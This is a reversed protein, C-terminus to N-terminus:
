KKGLMRKATAICDVLPRVMVRQTTDTQLPVVVEERLVLLDDLDAANIYQSRYTKFDETDVLLSLGQVYGLLSSQPVSTYIRRITRAALMFVGRSRVMPMVREETLHDIQRAIACLYALVQGEQKLHLEGTRKVTNLVLCDDILNNELVDAIHTIVAIMDMMQLAEIHSWANLLITGLGKEFKDCSETHAATPSKIDSLLAKHDRQYAKFNFMCRFCIGLKGDELIIRLAQEETEWLTGSKGEDKPAALKTEMETISATRAFTEAMDLWAPSLVEHTEVKRISTRLDATLRAVLQDVGLGGGDEDSPGAKRYRGAKEDLSM